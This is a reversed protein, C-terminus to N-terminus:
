AAIKDWVPAYSPNFIRMNQSRMANLRDVVEQPLEVGDFRDLESFSFKDSPRPLVIVGDHDLLWKLVLWGTTVGLKEAMAVIEANEHALGSALPAYATVAAGMGRVNKMVCAQNIFPHLEVENCLLPAESLKSAQQFLETTFNAVGLHKVLGRSRAENMADMTRELSFSKHPWHLLLMDIKNLRMRDLSERVSWLLDYPRVDDLWVKTAVFLDDRAIGSERIAQGVEIENGYAQATDIHRVGTALADTVKAVADKGRLSWTGVGLRPISVGFHETTLSRM